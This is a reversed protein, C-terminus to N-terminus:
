SSIPHRRFDDREGAVEEMNLQVNSKNTIQRRLFSSVTRNAYFVPRGLGLNTGEAAQVMLDILDAGSAANKTLDSM